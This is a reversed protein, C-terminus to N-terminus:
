ARGLGDALDREPPAPSKRSRAGARIEGPGQVGVAQMACQEAAAGTQATCPPLAAHKTQKRCRPM